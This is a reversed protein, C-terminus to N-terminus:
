RAELLLDAHDGSGQEQFFRWLADWSSGLPHLKGTRLNIGSASYGLGFLWQMFEAPDTKGSRAINEPSFEMLIVPHHARLTKEMGKFVRPEYGEVDIKILALRPPETFHDDWSISEVPRRSFDKGFHGDVEAESDLTMRGGANPDDLNTLYIRTSKEGLAMPFIEVWEELANIAVNTRLLRLNGPDPEFAFVKGAGTGGGARVRDAMVTTFYGLNAGIDAALDGPKLRELILRSVHREYTGTWLLSKSMLVDRTNVVLRLGSVALNVVTDDAPNALRSIGKLNLRKLGRLVGRVYPWARLFRSLRKM